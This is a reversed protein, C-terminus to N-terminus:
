VDPRVGTDWQISNFVVVWAVSVPILLVSLDQEIYPTAALVFVSLALLEVLAMNSVRKDRNYKGSDIVRSGLYVMVLYLVCLAIMQPTSTLSNNLVIPALASAMLVHIVASWAISGTSPYLRDDGLATHEHVRTGMRIMFNSEDVRIDKIEGSVSIQFVVWLFVFILLSAFVWTFTGGSAVYSILFVLTHSITIFIFKFDTVNNLLNYGVGFIIQVIIAVALLVAVGGSQFYSIATMSYLALSIMLFTVYGMAASYELRGDNLPHHQKNPDEVDGGLKYDTCSNHSYGAVHYLFGYLGWIVVAEHFLTGTALAAGVIAPVTELPATHLRGLQLYEKM